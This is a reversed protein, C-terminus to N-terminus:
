TAAKAHSFGRGLVRRAVADWSKGDVVTERGAVSLRERLAADVRLRDIATALAAPDDPPTLLGNVGDDILGALQGIRSAVVPIGAAMYEYVKLPSFYFNPNDPYPAVAVDMSALLGPIESPDVAGTFHVADGLGRAILDAETREREGGDGVILLRTAPTRQHLLDFAEVLSPLGHWPKLTGVFGVTFVGSEAPLSAVTGPAFRTTNVGNPIVHVCTPDIDFTRVYEAVEDSVAVIASAARFANCAVMEAAERNVLGRHEAQEELLPANVELIGPIGALRAFQMGAYSWLSYREYILDFTGREELAQALAANAALAAQERSALDGKPVPPLEHLTVSAFDAPADGGVRTAFLDVEVGLNCMARIVEQVHVSAGKRGYVPVGPDASIYALRM